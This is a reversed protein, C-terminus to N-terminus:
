ELVEIIKDKTIWREVEGDNVFFSVRVIKEREEKVECERIRTVNVGSGFWAGSTSVWSVEAFVRKM